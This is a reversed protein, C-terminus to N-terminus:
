PLLSLWVWSTLIAGATSILVGSAVVRKAVGYNNAFVYANVGPAMAATVVASRLPELALGLEYSIGWTLAPQVVLMIACILLVPGVDGEIKYRALVGGLGFIAAPIAARVMLDIAETVVGPLPLATLNVFFGLMIGIILANRFVGNFVARASRMAGRGRSRVIEMTTIGVAYCFPANLAVLAYNPALSEPGYAREMIPLGLLVVNTFMCCFGIAVSDEWPRGCLLRAGLIGILFGVLTPGFFAVYLTLDFHVSLDLQSIARFLLCPVAFNQAFSMLADVNNDSFLNRKVALYGFGIVLFVPLVVQVLAAM